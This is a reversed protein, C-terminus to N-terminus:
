RKGRCRWKSIREMEAALREDAKRKREAERAAKEAAIAAQKPREHDPIIVGCRAPTLAPHHWFERQVLTPPNDLDFWKRAAAVLNPPLSRVVPDGSEAEAAQGKSLRRIKADMLLLERGIFHQMYKKFSDYPPLVPWTSPDPLPADAEYGPDGSAHRLLPDPCNPVVGIGFGVEIAILEVDNITDTVRELSIPLNVFKVTGHNFNSVKCIGSAFSSTESCPLTAGGIDTLELVVRAGAITTISMSTRLRSGHKLTSHYGKRWLNESGSEGQQIVVAKLRQVMANYVQPPVNEIRVRAQRYRMADDKDLECWVKLRLSNLVDNMSISYDVETWSQPGQPGACSFLLRKAVM